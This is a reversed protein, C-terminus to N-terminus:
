ANSRRKKRKKKRKKRLIKRPRLASGFASRVIPVPM